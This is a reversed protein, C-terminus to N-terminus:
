KLWRDFWTLIGRASQEKAWKANEDSMDGKVAFGHSVGSFLQEHYPVKIEALIAEAQHRKEPPFAGDVEACSMLLPAKIARLMEESIASPHAFAGADAVGNALANAVMPAGFCYGVAAHKKGGYKAKVAKEWEATLGPAKTRYKGAWARTDFGPDKRLEELQDGDFYDPSLVLYGHEAFWDMILKNNIFHPGFVDCYYLIIKDTSKSSPYAAYTQVGGIDILEGKAEGEHKVATFCADGPPGALYQSM